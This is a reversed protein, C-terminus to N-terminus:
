IHVLDIGDVVVVVEEQAGAVKDTVLEGAEWAEVGGIRLLLLLVVLVTAIGIKLDELCIKKHHCLVAKDDQLQIIRLELDQFPITAVM